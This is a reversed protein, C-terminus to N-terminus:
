ARGLFVAKDAMFTPQFALQFEGQQEGVVFAQEYTYTRGPLVTASPPAGEGCGGGFDFIMDAKTSNFQADAAYSLVGADFPKDTDNVVTITFKVAREANQPSAVDSPTCEVPAAVEVALGDDWTYRQGWTPTQPQPPEAAPQGAQASADSVTGQNASPTGCGVLIGAAAVASALVALSKM